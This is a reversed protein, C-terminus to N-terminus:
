DTHPPDPDKLGERREIDQIKKVDLSNREEPYKILYRRFFHGLKEDSIRELSERVNKEMTNLITFQVMNGPLDEMEFPGMFLRIRGGRHEISTVVNLAFHAEELEAKGVIIRNNGEQLLGFLTKLNKALLRAHDDVYEKTVKKAASHHKNKCYIHCYVKDTRGHLEKGCTTCHEAKRRRKQPQGYPSTQEHVYSYLGQTPYNKM